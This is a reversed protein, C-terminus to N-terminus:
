LPIDVVSSTLLISPLAISNLILVMNVVSTAVRTATSLQGQIKQIRLAWNKIKLDGNSIEYGLYRTTCEPPLVEIM